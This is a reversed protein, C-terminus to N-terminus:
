VPQNRSVTVTKINDIRHCADQYAEVPDMASYDADDFALIKDGKCLKEYITSEPNVDEM